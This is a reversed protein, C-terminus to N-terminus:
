RFLVENMRQNRYRELYVIDEIADHRRENMGEENASLLKSETIKALQERRVPSM